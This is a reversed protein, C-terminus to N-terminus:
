LKNRLKIERKPYTAPVLGSKLVIRQGVDGALFSAFGMGLGATGQCNIFWITRTLPYQGAAIDNQTPKFGDVALVKIQSLYPSSLSDAEYLWDVGTFGIAGPNAAVYEMLERHSGVSYARALSDASAFEKMCRVTGSAPNDFVLTAAKGQGRLMERLGASTITNFHSERSTILAIGDWAVETVRPILKRGEFWAQESETLPRSLVAMRLSDTRLATSIHQEPCPMLRIHAYPYQNEFVQVQGELMPYFTEDVLIAATGRTPTEDTKKPGNGCSLIVLGVAALMLNKM